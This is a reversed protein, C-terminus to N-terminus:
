ILEGLWPFSVWALWLFSVLHFLYNSLWSPKRRNYFYLSLMIIWFFLNFGYMAIVHILGQHKLGLEWSNILSLISLLILASFLILSRRSILNNNNYLKRSWLIFFIPVLSYGILFSPIVWALGLKEEVIWQIYLIPFIVPLSFPAAISPAGSACTIYSALALILAGSLNYKLYSEKLSKM